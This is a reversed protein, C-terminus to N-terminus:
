DLAGVDLVGAADAPTVGHPLVGLCPASLCARLTAINEDLLPMSPDVVNAIWGAFRCGDAEIARAAHPDAGM